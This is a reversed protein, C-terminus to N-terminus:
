VVRPNSARVHCADSPSERQLGRRGVTECFRIVTLGEGELGALATFAMRRGPTTLAFHVLQTRIPGWGTIACRDEQSPTSLLKWEICALLQITSYDCQLLAGTNSPMPIGNLGPLGLRLKGSAVCLRGTQGSNRVDDMGCVPTFVFQWEPRRGLQTPM